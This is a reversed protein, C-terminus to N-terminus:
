KEKFYSGLWPVIKDLRRMTKDIEGFNKHRIFSEIQEGTGETREIAKAKFTPRFNNALVAPVKGYQYIKARCGILYEGLRCHCHGNLLLRVDYVKHDDLLHNLKELWVRFQQVRWSPSLLIIWPVGDAPLNFLSVVDKITVSIGFLEAVVELSKAIIRDDYHYFIDIQHM